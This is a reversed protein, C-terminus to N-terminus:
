SQARRHLPTARPKREDPRGSLSVPSASVSPHAAEHSNGRCNPDLLPPVSITTNRTPLPEAGKVSGPGAQHSPEGQLKSGGQRAESAQHPPEGQLNSGGQRAESAQHSPEGQLHSGGQRVESAPATQMPRPRPCSTPGGHLYAAAPRQIAPRASGGPHAAAGPQAARQAASYGLSAQHHANSAAQVLGAPFAHSALVSATNQVAQRGPQVTAQAQPWHPMHRPQPGSLLFPPQTAQSPPRIPGSLRLQTSSTSLVAQQTSAQSASAPLGDSRRSPPLSSIMSSM